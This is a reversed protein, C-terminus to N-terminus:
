MDADLQNVLSKGIWKITSGLLKQNALSELYTRMQAFKLLHYGQGIIWINYQIFDVIIVVSLTPCYTVNM